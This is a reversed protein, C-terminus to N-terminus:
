KALIDSKAPIFCAQTLGKPRTTMFTQERDSGSADSENNNNDSVTVSDSSDLRTLNFNGNRLNKRSLFIRNAGLAVLTVILIVRWLPWTNDV